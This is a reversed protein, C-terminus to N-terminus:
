LQKGLNLETSFIILYTKFTGWLDHTALRTVQREKSRKGVGKEGDGELKRKAADSMIIHTLQEKRGCIGWWSIRGWWLYM